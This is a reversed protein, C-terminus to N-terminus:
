SSQCLSYVRSFPDSIQFAGKDARPIMSAISRVVAGGDPRIPVVPSEHCLTSATAGGKKTMEGFKGMTGDSRSNLTNQVIHIVM